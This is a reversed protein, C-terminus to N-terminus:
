QLKRSNHLRDIQLFFGM